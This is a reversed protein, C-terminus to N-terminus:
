APPPAIISGLIAATQTNITVSGLPDTRIVAGAGLVFDGRTVAV